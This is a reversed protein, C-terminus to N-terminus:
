PAAPSLQPPSVITATVTTTSLVTTAPSTVTQFRTVTQGGATVTVPVTTTPGTGANSDGIAYGAAGGATAFAIVGLTWLTVRRLSLPRGAQLEDAERLRQQAAPLDGTSALAAALQRLVWIESQRDGLARAASHGRDLLTLWEEVRSAIGFCAQLTKVLELLREWQQCEAAWEALGLVAEADDLLREPTLQGDKALTTVYQLLREGTSLVTDTRRIEEGIRDLARYRKKEDRRILGRRELDAVLPTVDHVEALEALEDGSLSARGVIALAALVRREAVPLAAIQTTADPRAGTGSV